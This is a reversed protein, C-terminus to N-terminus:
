GESRRNREVNGVPNGVSKRVVRVPMPTGNPIMPGICAGCHGVGAVIPKGGCAMCTMDELRFEEGQRGCTPCDATLATHWFDECAPETM